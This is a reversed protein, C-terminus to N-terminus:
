QGSRTGRSSQHLLLHPEILKKQKDYFFYLTSLLSYLTSGRGRYETKEVM